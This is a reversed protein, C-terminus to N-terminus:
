LATLLARGRRNAKLTQGSPGATELADPLLAM